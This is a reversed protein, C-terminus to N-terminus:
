RMWEQEDGELAMETMYALYLQGDRRMTILRQGPYVDEYLPAVANAALEARAPNDGVWFMAMVEMRM